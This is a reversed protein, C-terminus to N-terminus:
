KHLLVRLVLVEEEQNEREWVVWVWENIKSDVEWWEQVYILEQKKNGTKEMVSVIRQVRSLRTRIINM